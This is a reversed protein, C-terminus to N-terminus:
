VIKQGTGRWGFLLMQAQVRAAVESGACPVSGGHSGALLSPSVQSMGRLKFNADVVGFAELVELSCQALQFKRAILNSVNALDESGDQVDPLKLEV